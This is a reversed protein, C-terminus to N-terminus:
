CRNARTIDVTVRWEGHGLDKVDSEVSPEYYGYPKLASQVEREVLNHLREITDASLDTRKQLARLQPLRPRQDCRNTWM